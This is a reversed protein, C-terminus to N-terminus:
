RGGGGGGRGGGRGNSGESVSGVVVIHDNNPMPTFSSRVWESRRALLEVLKNTQQPIVLLEVLVAVMVILRGLTTVPAIDGFGVTCLTITMFYFCDFFNLGVLHKADVEWEPWLAAANEVVHVGAASILVINAITFGQRHM